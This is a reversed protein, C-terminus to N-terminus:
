VTMMLCGSTGKYRWYKSWYELWRSVSKDRANCWLFSELSEEKNKCTELLM